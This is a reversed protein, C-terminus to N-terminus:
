GFMENIASMFRGMDCAYFGSSSIANTEIVKYTLKDGQVQAIDLCIAQRPCYENIRERAYDLMKPDLDSTYFVRNGLKYRSGTVIEGGIVYLRYEAYIEKYPAMMVLDDPGLTAFAFDGNIINKRWDYFEDANMMQGAFSKTDEVPRIFFGDGPPMITGLPGVVADHNLLEEGWADKLELQGPADIYGPNWGHKDSVLRMSTTGTVFVPNPVDITIPTDNDELGVLYDAFPPKRVLTYPTGSRDLQELLREYSGESRGLARDVVWHVSM